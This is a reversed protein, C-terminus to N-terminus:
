LISMFNPNEHYDFEEILHYIIDHARVRRDDPHEHRWKRYCYYVSGIMIGTMRSVVKPKPLAVDMREPLLFTDLYAFIKQKKQYWETKTESVM